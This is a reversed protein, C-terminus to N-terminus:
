GGCYAIGLVERMARSVPEDHGQHINVVAVVQRNGDKSNWAATMYGPSEAFQDDINRTL